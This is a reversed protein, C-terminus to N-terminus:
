KTRRKGLGRMVRRVGEADTAKAADALPPGDAKRANLMGLYADDAKRIIARARDYEADTLEMEDRLYERLKSGPIPGVTMGLQRETGLEWFANWLWVLHPELEPQDHFAAPADRGREAMFQWHKVQGGWQHQWRLAAIL